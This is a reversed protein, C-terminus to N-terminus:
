KAIKRISIAVFSPMYFIIQKVIVKIKHMASQRKRLIKYVDSISKRSDKLADFLEKRFNTDVRYTQKWSQYPLFVDYDKQEYSIGKKIREFVYTGRSSCVSIGSMGRTTKNYVKGWFDGLRIDSYSLTGRLKCESCSENLVQNCLFLDFFENHIPTTNYVRKGGAEVEMVFDGWGHSKSRWNVNSFSSVSCQEKIKSSIKEWVLMSPCGHCYLDILLHRDRIGAMEMYRSFAYIHCPLGFIAFKEKRANAVVRKFAEISYSQIYKSGRFVDTEAITDAIQYVANNNVRDYTVGVVKYGEKILEKALLDGIGGSTTKCVVNDDKASAAYLKTKSLSFGDSLSINSDYRYCVKICLGCDVCKNKDVMPRYFGDEDLQISIADRNCIAGCMQCSTCANLAKSDNINM